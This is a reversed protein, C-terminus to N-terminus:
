IDFFKGYRERFKAKAEDEEMGDSILKKIYANQATIQLAKDFEGKKHLRDHHYRCLRVTLGDEDANQRMSGHLCHHTDDAPSELGYVMRCIYCEDKTQIISKSM